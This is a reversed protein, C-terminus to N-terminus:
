VEQLRKGAKPSETVNTVMQSKFSNKEQSDANRDEAKPPGSM